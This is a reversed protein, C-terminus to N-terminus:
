SAIAAWPALLGNRLKPYEDWLVQGTVFNVPIVNYYDAFEFDKLLLVDDDKEWLGQPNDFDYNGSIKGYLNKNAFDLDLQRAPHNIPIDLSVSYLVYGHPYM